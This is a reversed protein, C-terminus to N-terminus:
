PHTVYRAALARLEAIRRVEDPRDEELSGRGREYHVARLNEEWADLAELLAARLKREINSM